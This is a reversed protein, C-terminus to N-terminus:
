KAFPNRLKNKHALDEIVMLAISGLVFYALLAISVTDANLGSLVGVVFLFLFSILFSYGITRAHDIVFVNIPTM